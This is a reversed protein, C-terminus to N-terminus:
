REPGPGAAVAERAHRITEIGEALVVADAPEDLVRRFDEATTPSPHSVGPTSM